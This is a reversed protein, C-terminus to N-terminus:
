GGCGQAVVADIRTAFEPSAVFARRLGEPSMAGSALQAEWFAQGDRDTGRRMFANYLDAVFDPRSRARAAYEDSGLFLSSIADVEVAVWAAGQCQAARFRGVWYEFGSSDPLRGLIGRYFDVLMNVEARAGAAGFIAMSFDSFERSFLFSLLVTQRSSGSALQESWWAWGAPDAPRNMFTAYLDALYEADSAAQAAYEPSAFFALAMAVWTENISAGLVTMRAAESEWYAAGAADADRGLIAAYFHTVLSREGRGALNVVRIGGAMDHVLVLSGSLNGAVTPTFSIDFACSRGPDVSACQHAVAFPGSVRAESITLRAAGNNTLMISRTRSTTQLSQGGFDLASPALALPSAVKRVRGNQQDAIFLEGIGDIFIGAPTNLKAETAGGGDGAFGAIGTGAYTSIVGSPSIRRIRHNGTDAIYLAGAADIALSAPNALQADAAPGGDGSFGPSGTGAYTTIIGAADVRRIRHNGKDAVYVNGRVDVAVDIPTDLHASTAAGGDGGFGASGDGACTTISGDPAVKRIRHNGFDAIYLNGDGDVAIGGPFGLGASTAPGGEGIPGAMGNGAYTTIVGSPTVRRIRKNGLDGIYLNGAADFAVGVPAVLSASTAPGGDGGYGETGGGAHTSISGAAEIRRIRNNGQDAVYLNGAADMELGTPADLSAATALGGDGGYGRTGNGAFTDIAGAADVKRIRQNREDAIYLNGGADVAVGGAHDLAAQAALGGDGAFGPWSTGAYTTIVGALDVKRVRSNWWDAIYLEGAAGVAVSRPQNLSASTAPGGDGGFGETGTGAYTTIVGSSDVKRVRSNGDEAIYLNGLADAAVGMPLSLTAATAPGGDGGFGGEGQGAYTSITGAIDVKRVRQNFSDAIYLNGAADLAVGAPAYLSAGTAPGGDGGFGRNGDGAFSSIVGAADVKRIRDNDRDAIYLNGHGDVAVAAPNNLAASGAPGGDGSFGAIGTGAVTTIAGTPDVKRVRHHFQDAIYVNGGADIAVGTPNFLNAGTAAGGDGVGGGAFTTMTQADVGAGLAQLLLVFVWGWARLQRLRSMTQIM